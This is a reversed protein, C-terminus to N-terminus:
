DDGSEECFTLIVKRGDGHHILRPLNEEMKYLRMHESVYNVLDQLETCHLNHLKARFSACANCSSADNDSESPRYCTKAGKIGNLLFKVFISNQVKRPWGKVPNKIVSKGKDSSSCYAIFNNLAIKSPKSSTDQHNGSIESPVPSPANETTSEHSTNSSFFGSLAHQLRGVLSTQEGVNSMSNSDVSSPVSASTVSPMSQSRPVTSKSGSGNVFAEAFCGSVFMLINDANLQELKKLFNDGNLTENRPLYFNGNQDFHGSLFVFLNLSVHKKDEKAKKRTEDFSIGVLEM